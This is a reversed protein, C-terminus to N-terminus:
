FSDPAAGIADLEARTYAGLSKFNLETYNKIWRM